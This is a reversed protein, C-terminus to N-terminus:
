ADTERGFRREWTARTQRAIRSLQKREAWNPPRGRRYSRAIISDLRKSLAQMREVLADGTPDGKYTAVWNPARTLVRLAEDTGGLSYKVELRHEKLTQAAREANDLAHGPAQGEKIRRHVLVVGATVEHIGRGLPALYPQLVTRHAARAAEGRASLADVLLKLVAAIAAIGAAVLTATQTTLM